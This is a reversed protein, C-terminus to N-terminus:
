ILLKPSVSALPDPVPDPYYGDFAILRLENRGSTLTTELSLGDLIKINDGPEAWMYNWRGVEEWSSSGSKKLQAIIYLQQPAVAPEPEIKYNIELDGEFSNYISSPSLKTFVYASGAVTYTSIAEISNYKGNLNVKARGMIGSYGELFSVTHSCAFTKTEGSLLTNGGEEFSCSKIWGIATLPWGFGIFSTLSSFNLAEASNNKIQYELELTNGINVSSPPFTVNLTEVQPGVFNLTLGYKEGTTFSAIQQNYGACSLRANIKDKLDLIDDFDFDLQIYGTEGPNLTLSTTIFGETSIRTDSTYQRLNCGVNNSLAPVEQTNKVWLRYSLHDGSNFTVPLGDTFFSDLSSYYEEYTGDNGPDYDVGCDELGTDNVSNVDCVASAYAISQPFFVIILLFLSFILFILIKKKM